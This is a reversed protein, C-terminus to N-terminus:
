EYRVLRLWPLKIIAHFFFHLFLAALRYRRGSSEVAPAFPQPLGLGVRTPRSENAWLSEVIESSQRDFPGFPM